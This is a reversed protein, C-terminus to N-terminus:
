TSVYRGVVLVTTCVYRVHFTPLDCGAFGGWFAIKVSSSLARGVLLNLPDVGLAVTPILIIYCFDVGVVEKMGLRSLPIVRGTGVPRGQAGDSVM